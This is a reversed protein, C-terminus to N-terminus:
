SRELFSSGRIFIKCTTRSHTPGTLPEPNQGKRPSSMNDEQEAARVIILLKLSCLLSSIKIRISCYRKLFCTGDEGEDGRSRHLHGRIPNTALRVRFRGCGSSVGSSKPTVYVPIAIAFNMGAVFSFPCLANM